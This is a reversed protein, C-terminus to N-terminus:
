REMCWVRSTTCKIQMAQFTCSSSDGSIDIDKETDGWHLRDRGKNLLLYRQAGGDSSFHRKQIYQGKQCLSIMQM